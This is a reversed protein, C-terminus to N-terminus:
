PQTETEPASSSCRKGKNNVELGGIRILCSARFNEPMAPDDVLWLHGAPDVAAGEISIYPMRRPAPFDALVKRLDHGDIDYLNLWREALCTAPDIRLIWGGNRDVALLLGEPTPALANLTQMQGQRQARVAATLSASISQDVVMRGKVLRARGMRPNTFMILPKAESTHSCTGEEVWYLEGPNGTPTLGELGDNSDRGQEEDVCNYTYVGILRAAAREKRNVLELELVMSYPQEVAVFIRSEHPPEPSFAITVAELDLMPGDDGKLTAMIQRRLEALVREGAAAYEKTFGVWDDSPEIIFVEDTTLAEGSNAKPLKEASLFYLKGASRGGNRDCVVWLGERSGLRGYHLGSAQEIDYKDDPARLHYYDIHVAEGDVAPNVLAFWAGALICRCFAPM